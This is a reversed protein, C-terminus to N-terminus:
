KVEKLSKDCEASYGIANLANTLATLQEDRDKEWDKNSFISAWGFPMFEAHPTAKIFGYDSILKQTVDWYISDFNNLQEGADIKEKVIQCSVLIVLKSFEEKTYCKEHHLLTSPTEEYSSYGVEYLYM